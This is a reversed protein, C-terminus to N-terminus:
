SAMPAVGVLLDQKEGQSYLGEGVIHCGDDHTKIPKKILEFNGKIIYNFFTRLGNERVEVLDM